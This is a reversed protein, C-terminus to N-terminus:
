IKPKQRHSRLEEVLSRVWVTQIPLHLRLWQVLLSTGRTHKICYKESAWWSRGPQKEDARPDGPGLVSGPM